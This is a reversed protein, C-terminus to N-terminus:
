GENEAVGVDDCHEIGTQLKSHIKRQIGLDRWPTSQGRVYMGLSAPDSGFRAYPNNYPLKVSDPHTVSNLRYQTAYVRNAVLHIFGGHFEKLFPFVSQRQPTNDKGTLKDIKDSCTTATGLCSPLDYHECLGELQDLMEWLHFDPSTYKGHVLHCVGDVHFGITNLDDHEIVRDSINPYQKALFNELKDLCPNIRVILSQADEKATSENTDYAFRVMMNRLDMIECLLEECQCGKLVSDGFMNLERGLYALIANTQSLVQGTSCDVLFPLNILPFEERLWEKDHLWTSKDWGGDDNEKVDYMVVWHDIQAASLLMRIPAGLGRISWYGVVFRPSPQTQYKGYENKIITDPKLRDQVKM